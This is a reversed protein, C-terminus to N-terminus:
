LMPKLEIAAFAHESFKNEISNVVNRITDDLETVAQELMLFCKKGARYNNEKILSMLGLISAVPKRYEHSQIYAIRLLLRNQAQIETLQRKHENINTASNAVSIIDGNEDKVPNFSINWWEQGKGDNILIEKNTQRGAFANKIYRIFEDKYSSNIYDLISKGIEIKKHYLKKTFAAMANNFDLVNLDKDILTHCSSSSNFFGRLKRESAMTKEKQCNLEQNQQAIIKLGLQLEMLAMVQRSLMALLDKQKKTFVNPKRDILCLSGLHYGSSTILPAGAYSRVAHRGTVAPNNLFRKDLTADPVVMVKKLKILHKCFSDKRTNEKLKIGSRCKVWQTKEGMLSIMAIPVDCIQVALTVLDNLERNSGLDLQEFQSVVELRKEEAHKM